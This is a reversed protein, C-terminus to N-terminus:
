CKNVNLMTLLCKTLTLQGANVTSLGPMNATDAIDSGVLEADPSVLGPKPETGYQSM